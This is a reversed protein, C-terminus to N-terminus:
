SKQRNSQDFKDKRHDRIDYNAEQKSNKNNLNIPDKSTVNGFINLAKSHTTENLYTIKDTESSKNTKTSKSGRRSLFRFFKSTM